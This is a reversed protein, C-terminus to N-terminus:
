SWDISFNLIKKDKTKQYFDSNCFDLSHHNILFLNLNCILSLFYSGPATDV